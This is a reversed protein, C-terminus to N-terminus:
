FVVEGRFAFVDDALTTPLGGSTRGLANTNHDYEAILRAAKQYRAAATFAVTSWAPDLPVVHAGRQESADADPQYRDYRVGIEAWPTLELRGSLVFGRERLDRGIPVPDAVVLAR